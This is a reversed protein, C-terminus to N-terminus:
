SDSGTLSIPGDIIAEWYGESDNWVFEDSTFGGDDTNFDETVNEGLCSVPQNNIGDVWGCDPQAVTRHSFAMLLLFVLLLHQKFLTKLQTLNTNM